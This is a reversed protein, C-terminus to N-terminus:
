QAPILQWKQNSNGSSAWVIVKAGAATSGGNDLAMGSSQNDVEYYGDGLDKLKWRQGPAGTDAAVAASAGQSSGVATLAMKSAPNSLAYSGGGTDTIQWKENAGGTDASQVVSAGGAADLAYASTYNVLRYTAGSVIANSHKTWAGTSTDISWSAYWSMSVSKGQVDLPLWVYTSDGLHAPSWRDGMFVFTTAQTGVVPLVFMTQSNFTNSGGPAFSTWSAWPGALSTATAVQNDNTAWGTLQSGFLFYTGNTKLIAPGEHTSLTATMTAVSLYDSSLREVHLGVANDTTLLYATGDDDQFLNEDFSDNGLPKSSGMYTYNGCVTQSVAVGVSPASYGPADAHFYMVYRSSTANFIVRPREVIRKPGLDGSTQRTLVHNQFTWHVLDPSSSCSVNQFYADTQDEGTKDEGFWYYLSGSKVISGGHGQVSAHNQDHWQDGSLISGAGAAADAGSDGNADSSSADAADASSADSTIKSADSSAEPVGGSSGSADGLPAGSDTSSTGGAPANGCSPGAAAVVVLAASFLFRRPLGV